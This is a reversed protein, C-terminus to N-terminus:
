VKNFGIYGLQSHALDFLMPTIKNPIVVRREEHRIDKKAFLLGRAYEFPLLVGDEGSGEINKILNITRCCQKDKQYADKIEELFGPHVHVTIVPYVWTVKNNEGVEKDVASAPHSDNSSEVLVPSTNSTPTPHKVHMRSLADPVINSKGPKHRIILRFASLHQSSRQHRQNLHVLSTTTTMFTQTVIQLTASHDTYIITPYKSTEIKHRIKSVVWCCCAVELETPWYNEEESKLIRSLFMIPKVSSQTPPNITSHYIMAGMGVGSADLDAYLRQTPNFHVLNSATFFSEQLTAFSQNEASTVQLIKM